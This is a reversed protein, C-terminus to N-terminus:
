PEKTLGWRGREASSQAYTSRSEPRCHDRCLCFTQGDRESLLASAEDVTMGRALAQTPTLAIGRVRRAAHQALAEIVIQGEDGARVVSYIPPLHDDFWIDVVSGRVSVVAGVNSPSTRDGM